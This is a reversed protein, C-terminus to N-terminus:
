NFCKLANDLNIKSYNKLKKGNYLISNGKIELELRKLGTVDSLKTLIIKNDRIEYVAYGKSYQADFGEINDSNFYAVDSKGSKKFSFAYCVNKDKDALYWCGKRIFSYEEEKTTNAQSSSQTESQSTTQSPKTTTALATTQFSSTQAATTKNDDKSNMALYAVGACVGILVVTLFIILFSNKKM